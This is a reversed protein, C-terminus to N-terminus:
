GAAIWRVRQQRRINTHAVSSNTNSSRDSRQIHFCLAKLPSVLHAYCPNLAASTRWDSSATFFSKGVQLKGGAVIM